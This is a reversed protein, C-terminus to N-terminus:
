AARTNTRFRAAVGPPLRRLWQDFTMAQKRSNCSYCCVTVNGLTHTGGKSIPHLHDLTKDRSVMLRDCYPCMSAMAFLRRVVDPTLSGDPSVLVGRKKKQGATKAKEKARFAPFLNYKARYEVSDPSVGEAACRQDLLRTLTAQLIALAGAQNIPAEGYHM